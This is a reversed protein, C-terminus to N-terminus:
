ECLEKWKGANAKRIMVKLQTKTQKYRNMAEESAHEQRRNERTLTKRARVCERRKENIEDTWWYVPKRKCRTKKKKKLVTECVHTTYVALERANQINIPPGLNIYNKLKVKDDKNCVYRWYEARNWRSTDRRTDLVTCQIMKHCSVTEQELVKWGDISHAM